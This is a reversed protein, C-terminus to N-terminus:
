PKSKASKPKPGPFVVMHCSEEQGPPCEPAAQKGKEFVVDTPVSAPDVIPQNPDPRGYRTFENPDASAPAPSNDIEGPKPLSTRLPTIPELYSRQESALAGRVSGLSKILNSQNVPGHVLESYAKGFARAQEGGDTSAFAPLGLTGAGVFYIASISLAHRIRGM